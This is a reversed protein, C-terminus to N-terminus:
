SPFDPLLVEAPWLRIEGDPWSLNMLRGDPGLRVVCERTTWRLRSRESGTAVDLVLLGERQAVVLCQGDPTYRITFDRHIWATASSQETWTDVNWLILNGERVAVCLVALTAGDPSFALAEIHSSFRPSRQRERLTELDWLILENERGVTVALREDPSIALHVKYMRTAPGTSQCASPCATKEPDWLAPPKNTQALLLRGSPLFQLVTAASGPELTAEVLQQGTRLDCVTLRPSARQYYYAALRRAGSDVARVNWSAGVTLPSPWVEGTASDWVMTHEEADLGVLHRGDMSTALHRGWPGRSVTPATLPTARDGSVRADHCPGCCHGMWAIDGPRGCVGCDCLVLWDSRGGAQRFLTRLPDINLLPLDRDGDREFLDDHPSRRGTRSRRGVVRLVLQGIANRWWAVGLASRDVVEEGVPGSVWERVGETDNTLGAAFDSLGDLPWDLRNRTCRRNISRLAQQLLDFFEVPAPDILSRDFSFPESM